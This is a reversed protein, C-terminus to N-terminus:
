EFGVHLVIMRAPAKQFHDRGTTRQKIVDLPLVLRTVLRQEFLVVNATSYMVRANRARKECSGSFHHEPKGIEIMNLLARARVLVQAAYGAAIRRSPKVPLAGTGDSPHVGNSVSLGHCSRRVSAAFRERDADRLRACPRKTEADRSEHVWSLGICHEINM